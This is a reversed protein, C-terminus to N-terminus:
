RRGTVVAAFLVVLLGGIVSAELPLEGISVAGKDSSSATDTTEQAALDESPSKVDFTFTLGDFEQALEEHGKPWYTIDAIVTREGTTTSYVNARVDKIGSASDVTFTGSVMGAGGSIADSSGSIQMGSPVQMTVRVVIPCDVGPAVQFGGAIHGPAGTEVVQKQAYLRKQSLLNTGPEVECESEDAAADTSTSEPETTRIPTAPTTTTPEGTSDTAPEATTRVLETTTPEPADTPTATPTLTPSETAAVTTTTAPGARPTPEATTDAATETTPASAAALPATVFGTLVVLVLAVTPFKPNM